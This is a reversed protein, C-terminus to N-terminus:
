DLWEIGDAINNFDIRNMATVHHRTLPHHRNESFKHVNDSCRIYNWGTIAMNTEHVNSNCSIRNWAHKTKPEEQVLCNSGASNYVEKWGLPWFHDFKKRWVSRCYQNSKNSRTRLSPWETLNNPKTIEFMKLNFMLTTWGTMVLLTVFLTWVYATPETTDIEYSNRRQCNLFWTKVLTPALIANLGGVISRFYRRCYKDTM